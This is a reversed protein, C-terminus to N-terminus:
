SPSCIFFNPATAKAKKNIRDMDRTPQTLPFELTEDFPDDEAAGVEFFSIV